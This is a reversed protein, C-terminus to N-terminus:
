YPIELDFEKMLNEFAEIKQKSFCNSHGRKLYGNKYLWNVYDRLKGDLDYNIGCAKKIKDWDRWSQPNSQRRDWIMFYDDNVAYDLWWIVDAKFEDILNNDSAIKYLKDFEEKYWEFQIVGKIGEVRRFMYDEIVTLYADEAGVYRAQQKMQRLRVQDFEESGALEVLEAEFVPRFWNRQEDTWDNPDQPLPIFEVETPLGGEEKFSPVQLEPSERITFDLYRGERDPADIIVKEGKDDTVTKTGRLLNSPDVPVKRQAAPRVVYEAPTDDPLGKYENSYIPYVHLIEHAFVWWLNQTNNVNGTKIDHYTYEEWDRQPDAIVDERLSIITYQDSGDFNYSTFGFAANKGSDSKQKHAAVLIKQSNRAVAM